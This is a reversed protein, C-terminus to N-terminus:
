NFKTKNLQNYCKSMEFQLLKKYQNRERRRKHWLSRRVRNFYARHIYMSMYIQALFRSSLLQILEQHDKVTWCHARNKKSRASYQSVRIRRSRHQKQWTTQDSDITEYYYRMYLSLRYFFLSTDFVIAVLSERIIKLM